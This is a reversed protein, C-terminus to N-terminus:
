GTHALNVTTTVCTKGSSMFVEAQTLDTGVCLRDMPVMVHVCTDTIQRMAKIMDLINMVM